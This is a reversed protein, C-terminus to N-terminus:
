LFCSCRPVFVLSGCCTNSTWSPWRWAGLALGGLWLGQPCLPAASGDGGDSCLLNSLQREGHPVHHLILCGRLTYEPLPSTMRHKCRGEAMVGKGGGLVALFGAWATRPVRAGRQPDQNKSGRAEDRPPWPPMCTANEQRIKSNQNNRNGNGGRRATM